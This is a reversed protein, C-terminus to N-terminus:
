EPLVMQQVVVSLKVARHDFHNRARYLVARDTFLSIWCRRIADLVAQRGQINLFTDQQGAFSADPLDEATASSRVAFATPSETGNVAARYAREIDASLAEPLGTAAIWGRITAGATALARVDGVDLHRIADEIRAGLNDQQLFERFADATTAFGGPVRIGASALEGIMEGLSANKGGVQALDRMRLRELPIVRVMESM